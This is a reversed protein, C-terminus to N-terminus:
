LIHGVWHEDGLSTDTVEVSSHEKRNYVSVVLDFEMTVFAEFGCGSNSVFSNILCPLKM